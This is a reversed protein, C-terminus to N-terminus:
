GARARRCATFVDMYAQHGCEHPRCDCLWPRSFRLLQSEQIQMIEGGVADRYIAWVRGCGTLMAVHLVGMANVEDAGPLGGDCLAQGFLQLKLKMVAVLLDLGAGAYIHRENEIFLTFRRAM